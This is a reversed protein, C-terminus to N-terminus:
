VNETFNMPPFIAGWERAGGLNMSKVWPLFHLRPPLAANKALKAVM